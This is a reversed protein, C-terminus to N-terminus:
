IELLSIEENIFFSRFEDPQDEPYQGKENIMLADARNGTETKSFFVVQADKPVGQEKVRLRFRDILYDSHTEIIYTHSENVVLFHILDGLAAQARPHL